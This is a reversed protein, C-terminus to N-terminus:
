NISKGKDDIKKYIIEELLRKREEESKSKFTELIKLEIKKEKM